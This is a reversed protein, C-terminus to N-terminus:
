ELEFWFGDATGNTDGEVLEDSFELFSTIRGDGSLAIDSPSGNVGTNAEDRRHSVLTLGATERNYLFLDLGMEEDQQGVVLNPADSDFAVYRGDYSIAATFSNEAASQHTSASTHSVLRNLGSAREYLFINRCVDGPEMGAVLDDAESAYAVWNGDGSIVPHEALLSCATTPQGAKHSVLANTGEVRDFLYVMADGATSQMRSVIDTAYSVYVVFRGDDSIGPRGYHTGYDCTTNPSDGVRSVLQNEGSRRDYLFIDVADGNVDNLGGVLDTADSVYVIFSGDASIAPMDSSANAATAVTGAAHSVLLNEGSDRDYLFIDETGLQEVQDAVLNPASSRYAVWRGDASISCEWSAAETPLESGVVHSVLTNQGTERDYLYVQNRFIRGGGDAGSPVLDFSSSAYAVYRGDASIAPFEAQGIGTQTPDSHHHSVLVTTKEVRDHLFLEPQHEDLLTDHQGPVLNTSSSVMAFWRGDASMALRSMGNDGTVRDGSGDALSAAHVTGRGPAGPTRPTQGGGSAVPPISGSESVGGSDEGPQESSPCGLTALLAILTLPLLYRAPIRRFM